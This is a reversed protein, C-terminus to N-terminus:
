AKSKFIGGSTSATSERMLGVRGGNDTCWSSIVPIFYKRKLKLNEKSLLLEAKTKEQISHIINNRLDELDQSANKIYQIYFKDYEEADKINAIDDFLDLKPPEKQLPSSLCDFQFLM